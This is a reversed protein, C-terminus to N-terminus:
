LKRVYDIGYTPGVDWHISLARELIIYSFLPEASCKTVKSPIPFLSALLIKQRNLIKDM